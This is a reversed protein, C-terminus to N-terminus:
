DTALRYALKSMWHVVRNAEPVGSACPEASPVGTSCPEASPVEAACSITVRCMKLGKIFGKNLVDAYLVPSLEFNCQTVRYWM